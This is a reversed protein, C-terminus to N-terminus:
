DQYREVKLQRDRSTSPGIHDLPREVAENHAVIQPLFLERYHTWAANALGARAERRGGRFRPAKLIKRNRSRVQRRVAIQPSSQLHAAGIRLLLRGQGVGADAEGSEDVDEAPGRAALLVMPGQFRRCEPEGFHLLSGAECDGSEQRRRRSPVAAAPSPMPRATAAAACGPM